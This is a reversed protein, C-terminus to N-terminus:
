SNGESDLLLARLDDFRSLAYTVDECAAAEGLGACDFGGARAAQVGAPADEVVLCAEPALALREAAITFVQPDPKGRTIDTGDSVADFFGELGIRRLIFKANQSSSAVALRLGGARLDILCARVAESLDEPTMVCLMQRYLGNKQEALARKEELSYTRGVGQLLIELSDLRSVGRLRRNIAPDFPAGIQEAIAKWARYHFRDTACLVGDLDFLVGRYRM